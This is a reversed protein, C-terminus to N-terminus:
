KRNEYVAKSKRKEGNRQLIPKFTENKKYEALATLRNNLHNGIMTRGFVELLLELINAFDKKAKNSPSNVM